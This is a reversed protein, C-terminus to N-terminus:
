DYYKYYSLSITKLISDINKLDQSSLNWGCANANEVAQDPNKAGPIPVVNKEKMLWNLAVQGMTKGKSDAIGKLVKLLKSIEKLNHDYFLRNDSRASDKPKNNVDYKGTLIGQALPSWAIVTMKERKCYKLVEQEIERQIMNYRLQNSVIDTTSLYGRAEKLDRVAFNSVGIARIKGEKFLKELAGMTEKLPIQEWPDPWHVQYLDIEKVDLRKLSKEAARLVDDYRCHVGHVKTAIVLNDRGIEKAVRGVIEESHGDAYSEATDILNIGLEYSKKMAKMLDEETFDQGWQKVNAQWAGLGIRSIKIGSKGLNIYEV